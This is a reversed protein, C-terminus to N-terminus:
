ERAPSHIALNLIFQRYVNVAQEVQECEIYEVAAHAQDICGPGLIMSPIGIGGFKSADSCFPVGCPQGDLGLSDLTASMTKVVEHEPDTELPVDTLMPEHMIADITPDQDALGALLKQYAALVGEVTEGPLLRRDIEIECRDPVLNVQVGGRIVGVNCTPQGLLAHTNESLQYNDAKVATIVEAMQEIANAGLHPKASHAATGRTEIKFRVLGKSATVVALDTPEAIVAGVVSAKSDVLRACYDAVGRYSYEEDIVAAFVVNCSPPDGAATLALAHMMAAMGGKTDCAGRGYMKGDRVVPDFPDITMGATSVTDMHAEFVLSRSKDRGPVTAIVNPRQPLVEHVVFEIENSRLFECVYDAIAIENVGDQYNPNVSKVRILDALTQLVSSLRPM